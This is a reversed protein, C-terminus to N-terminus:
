IDSELQLYGDNGILKNSIEQWPDFDEMEDQTQVFLKENPLHFIKNFTKEAISQEGSHFVKNFVKEAM